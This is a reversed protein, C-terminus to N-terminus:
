EHEHGRRPGEEGAQGELGGELVLVALAVDRRPPVDGRGEVVHPEDEVRRLEHGHRPAGELQGRKITIDGQVVVPFTQLRVTRDHGPKQTLRKGAEDKNQETGKTASGRGIPPHIHRRVM